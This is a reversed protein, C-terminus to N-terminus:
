WISKAIYQKINLNCFTPIAGEKWTNKQCDVPPVPSFRSWFKRQPPWNDVPPARSLLCFVLLWWFGMIYPGLNSLSASIALLEINGTEKPKSCCGNMETREFCNDLYKGYIKWRNEVFVRLGPVAAVVWLLRLSLPVPVPSRDWAEFSM